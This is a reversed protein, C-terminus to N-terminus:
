LHSHEIHFVSNMHRSKHGRTYEKGCDCIIKEKAYTPNKERWLQFQTLRKERTESYYIKRKELIEEKHELYYNKASSKCKDASKKYYKKNYEQKKQKQQSISM